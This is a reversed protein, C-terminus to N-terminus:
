MEGATLLELLAGYLEEKIPLAHLQSLLTLPNRDSRAMDMIQEKRDFEMEAQDLLEYIRKQVSVDRIELRGEFRVALEEAVPHAEVAIRLIGNEGDYTKCVPIEKGEAFVHVPCDAVSRFELYLDRRKPILEREGKPPHIVFRQEKEWDFEMETEVCKGQEYACSENDDEYLTFRGDAGPFIQIRLSAPNGSADKGFIEDTLPLIAGGKALVPISSLDRYFSIKRGSRSRYVMGTFFDTYIGAPLWGAAESVHIDPSGKTTVPFVLLETGFFYGNKCDYAESVDPYGYYLPEALMRGEQWCRHNMTYLYPIMEHRLRLFRGMIRREREPFHWPEKGNFENKTSHLRNVPSFVGYQVWRAALENDRYGKMHGGIDHSWWGYGINSATATFYPQFDLSDWTIISDGSFGVPYRHSGPGAYRSFTMPRKGDRGSDLFHFHNLMWLPDLGEQASVSGQQWDVWWFDVGMEEMPHHVIDFYNELFRPDSLDFVVPQEKEVDAGMAEAMEPYMEECARIGDAPHVNLTVRTGLRHLKELFREPEPFLERNWTYGTWGNGYKPDIDVLHWDMDLVAVTFPIKEEEFRQMLKLYSEETYSYYRSWWNGLAYRPLMPSSGCLHFYDRLAERYNRGYGFFYLDTGKERRERVLFDKGLLFSRSDDLLAFGEASLIGDELSCAGDVGDLTRATGGLTEAKEGYHWVGGQTVRVSLGSPSFKRKDYILHLFGTMVELRGDTEKVEFEPTSFDRNWVVQTPEDVFSGSGSYELRLLKETLVSIRFCDGRIQSKEPCEPSTKVYFRQAACGEHDRSIGQEQGGGEAVKLLDSFTGLNYKGMGCLVADGIAASDMGGAAAAQLGAKADEVVLCKEAPLKLFEAAKVFVEPDPKSRSINNGDSVADFFQGLGIRELIFRANKSSSGIALRLGKARLGNLTDKVEESLDNASMKKLLERYLVNKEEAFAEKEERTYEKDSRELIIELSEMRSVGRLRNNIERDFYVGLKDALVKWAQYHYEDTFCIVGDLDFIIGEYKM